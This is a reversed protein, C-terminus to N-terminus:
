CMDSMRLLDIQFLPNKRAELIATEFATRAKGIQGDKLHREGIAFYGIPQVGPPLSSILKAPGDPSRDDALLFSMIAQQPSAPQAHGAIERAEELHGDRWNLLFWGLSNSSIGSVSQQIFKLEDLKATYLTQLTRAENEASVRKGREWYAL